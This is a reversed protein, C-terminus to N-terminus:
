QKKLIHKSAPKIEHLEVDLQQLDGNKLRLFYLMRGGQRANLEVVTANEDAKSGKLVTWEGKTTNHTPKEFQTGPYVEDLTFTGEDAYQIHQLILTTNVRENASVPLNGKFKDNLMPRKNPGQAHGLFAIMMMIGIFCIHRM